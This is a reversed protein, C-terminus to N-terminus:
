EAQTDRADRLGYSQLRKRVTGRDLGLWEAAVSRNGAARQIVEDFLAPEIARILTAFLDAPPTGEALRQRVWERVANALKDAPAVAFESEAFHQPALPTGRAFIAAREIANRLERVNGLWSQRKLYEITAAPITPSNPAFRLLFNAALLPLDGVRERLPPIHIRFVNLRFLLDHRFRGENALENLDRHTAALIRFDCKVARDSGVPLVEGTELARLLKVQVASPIEAVEDLFVTGREAIALLGTRAESAGTFAGRVHGFLESEALSPNLAGVHVPLFPGASRLSHRHIARAVLEKGTGSEGTILVCAPSAAVLAIRKFVEQMQPSNGIMEDTPVTAEAPPAFASTREVASKAVRIAHTLDFPKTLYDFAGGQLAQVATTLDGYATMIVVPVDPSKETLMRLATLGDMGPLRVDLFVVDARQEDLARVGAEATAAVDADYGEAQLARRLSWCVAEEDDIIVARPNM